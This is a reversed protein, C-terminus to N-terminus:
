AATQPPRLPGDLFPTTGPAGVWPDPSIPLWRPLAAWGLTLLCASGMGSDAHQHQAPRDDEIADEVHLSADDHHHHGSDQAHLLMHGMDQSRMAAGQTSLAALPQCLLAILM